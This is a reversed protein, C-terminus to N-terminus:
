GMNCLGDPYIAGHRTKLPLCCLGRLGEPIGPSLPVKVTTGSEAHLLVQDDQPPHVTSPRIGVRCDLKADVPLRYVAGAAELVM